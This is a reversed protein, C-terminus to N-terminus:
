ETLSLTMYFETLKASSDEIDFGAKAIEEYRDRRDTALTVAKEAWERVDASNDSIPLFECLETIKVEQPITDSCICPLSAAQAEIAAIGLGEWLSPFLFCDAAQLLEPIDSRSGLLIVSDSLSLEKIKDTIKEREEGDGVLILVGESQMRKINAFADLLFLHNKSEHLRGVHMYVRKDTVGLKERYEKRTEENYTYARADIANKVLRYKDSKVAKKGFLWEGAENSCGFFFDAQYRIPYQLMYKVVSAIGGGNSTSHSHVVTKLGHHKAVPLYLSAYSRVHSHLIKYEPHESLFAHWERKIEPVNYGKFRPLTYVRGGLAEIEPVFYNREPRDVVFDFQVKNRDTKRYLNMVMAQSGGVDLNGIMHLIRIPEKVEEM